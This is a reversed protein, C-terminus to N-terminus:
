FNDTVLPFIFPCLLYAFYYKKLVSSEARMKKQGKLCPRMTTRDSKSSVLSDRLEQDEQRYRGSALVIPVWGWVWGGKRM